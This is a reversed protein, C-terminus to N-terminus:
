RVLLVKHPEDLARNLNENDRDNWAGYFWYEGDCNTAVIYKYNEAYAPTNLVEFGDIIMKAM